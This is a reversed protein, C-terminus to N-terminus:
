NEIYMVLDVVDSFQENELNQMLENYEEENEEKLEMLNNYLRGYFGQSNALMKIANLIEEKKMYFEGKLEAGIIEAGIIQLTEYFVNM